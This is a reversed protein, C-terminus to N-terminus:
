EADDMLRFRRASGGPLWLCPDSMELFDVAALYLVGRRAPAAARLAATTRAPARPTRAGGCAPTCTVKLHMSGGLHHAVCATLEFGRRQAAAAAVHGCLEADLRLLAALTAPACPRADQGGKRQNKPAAPEPLAGLFKGWVGDALLIPMGPPGMDILAVGAFPSAAFASAGGGGDDSSHHHHSRPVPLWDGGSIPAAAAAAAAATAAASGQESELSFRQSSDISPRIPPNSDLDRAVLDAILSLLLLQDPSLRKDAPDLIVSHPQHPKLL